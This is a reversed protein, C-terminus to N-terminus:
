MLWLMLGLFWLAALVCVGYSIASVREQRSWSQGALEVGTKITFLMGTLVVTSVLLAGMPYLSLNYLAHTLHNM